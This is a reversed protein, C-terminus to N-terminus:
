FFSIGIWDVYEDGPYWKSPNYVPWDKDKWAITHWVFYVNHINMDRLRNVIHRYAQIYMQPDYENEPSDFEYGIRLYVQKGSSKIWQGLRDINKDLKRGIVEKLMYKMYLGIQVVRIQSYKQFLEDVYNIGGGHDVPDFLGRLDNIATYAMIGDPYHINKTSPFNRLAALFDDISQTDQGIVYTPTNEESRSFASRDAAFLCFIIFLILRKKM